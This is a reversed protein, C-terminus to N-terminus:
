MNYPKINSALNVDAKYKGPQTKTLAKYVYDDKNQSYSPQLTQFGDEELTTVCLGQTFDYTQDPSCCDKGICQKISPSSVEESSRTTQPNKPLENKNFPWDYTDYNMKSRNYISIVTRWFYISGIIGIIIILGYYVSNPLMNNNFLITLIIVPILTYIVVKMLYSREAYKEGYYKNIEVLRIKNNMENKLQNLEKQSLETESEVVDLIDGQQALADLSMQLAEGQLLNIESISNELSARMSRLQNIKSILESNDPDTLLSQEMDSIIANLTEIDDNLKDIISEGGM